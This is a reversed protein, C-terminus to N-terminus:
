LDSLNRRRCASVCPALITPVRQLRSSGGRFGSAISAPSGEPGPRGEGDTAPRARHDDGDLALYAGVVPRAHVAQESIQDVGLPVKVDDEVEAIDGVELAVGHREDDAGGALRVTM